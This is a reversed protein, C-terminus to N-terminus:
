KEKINCNSISVQGVGFNDKIVDLAKVKVTDGASSQLVEMIAKTIAPLSKRVDKAKTGVHIGTKMMGEM